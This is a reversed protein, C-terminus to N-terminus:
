TVETLGKYGCGSLDQPPTYAQQGEGQEPDDTAIIWARLLGQVYGETFLRALDDDNSDIINEGEEYQQIAAEVTERLTNMAEPVEQAHYFAKQAKKLGRTNGEALAWLEPSDEKSLGQKASLHYVMESQIRENWLTKSM